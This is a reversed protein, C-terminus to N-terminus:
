PGRRDEAAVGGGATAVGSADEALLREVAQRLAVGPAASAQSLLRRPLFRALLAWGIREPTLLRRPASLRAMM